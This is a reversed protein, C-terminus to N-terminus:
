NGNIQNDNEEVRLFIFERLNKKVHGLKGRMIICELKRVTKIGANDEDTSDEHNEKLENELKAINM